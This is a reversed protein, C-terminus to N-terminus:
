PMALWDKFAQVVPEPREMTVMHGAEPVSVVAPRAPIWQSIEEHQAPNSWSDEAGCLVLTPVRLQRLVETGDPREILANIQHAFVDASKREMMAVVREVLAADALRHPAVMGQVWQLAMARVGDRQAIDKLAMRKAVEADGAAGPAKPLYGTDMLALHSVREPALRMVELAVRGGMSHGALAFRPPALALLQQAMVVLSRAQGHDIIQCCAESRLGELMPDWVSHDCMLGPVLVLNHKKM